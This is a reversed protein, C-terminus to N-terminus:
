DLRGFMFAFTVRMSTLHRKITGTRAKTHPSTVNIYSRGSYSPLLINCRLKSHLERSFVYWYYSKQMIYRCSWCNVRRVGTDAGMSSTTQSLFSVQFIIYPRATGESAGHKFAPPLSMEFLRIQNEMHLVTRYSPTLINFCHDSIQGLVQSWSIQLIQFAAM